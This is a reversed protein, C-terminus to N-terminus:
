VKSSRTILGKDTSTKPLSELSCFFDIPETQSASIRHPSERRLVFIFANRSAPATPNVPVYPAGAKMIGFLSAVADASKRLCIGVRDDPNVSMQRLRDCVRDSLRALEGYRIGGSESEKVAVKDPFQVASLDLLQHLAKTNTPEMKHEM